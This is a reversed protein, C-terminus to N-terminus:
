CKTLMRPFSSPPLGSRANGRANEGIGVYGRIILGNGHDNVPKMAKM